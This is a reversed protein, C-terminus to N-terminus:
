LNLVDFTEDKHKILYVKTYRSYDYIFVFYYKGGRSMIQKLDVLDYSNFWFIWNSTRCLSMKKTIKSEISIDCKSSQKHHM